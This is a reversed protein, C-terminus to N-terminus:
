AAPLPQRSLFSAKEKRRRGVFVTEFLSCDERVLMTLLREVSPLFQTTADDVNNTIDM